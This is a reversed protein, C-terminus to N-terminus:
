FVCGTVDLKLEGGVADGDITAASVALTQEGCVLAVDKLKYRLRLDLVGDGNRDTYNWGRPVAGTDNLVVSEVVVEAPDFAASSMFVVYLATDTELDVLGYEQWYPWSKVVIATGSFELAGADCAVIGDGNGDTRPRGLADTEPCLDLPILDIAPSGPALEITNSLLNPDAEITEPSTLSCDTAPGDNDFWDPGIVNYGLDQFHGYNVCGM